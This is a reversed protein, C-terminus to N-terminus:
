LKKAAHLTGYLSTMLQGIHDDKANPQSNLGVAIVADQRPFYGYLMRYGLTEGEYYWITGITPMTLQGVGLGFGKSDRATTSGIAKGTANSVISLLERRQAPALADGRYLRRVWRTLDEPSAVIGGAGQTWSLSFPKTDRGYLPALPANDPDRSYFYGSVMRDSVSQPYFSPAYYTDPLGRGVGLLRRHLEADYTQGTAREIVLQALIYATNSYSWGHTIPPTGDRPYGYAVLEKATFTRYPAKAYAALMAPVEDYGVIGSTMNLLQKITVAKWAPFQPLWRGVTDGISLRHEAELQLIIVSTFAKTNSGIQFLNAPTVPKDGGLATTGAAANINPGGGALSISASAASIHEAAGNQKLYAALDNRLASQLRTQATAQAFAGFLAAALTASLIWIRGRLPQV